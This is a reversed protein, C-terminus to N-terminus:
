PGESVEKEKPEHLEALLNGVLFLKRAEKYKIKNLSLGGV